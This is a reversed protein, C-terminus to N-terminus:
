KRINPREQVKIICENSNAIHAKKLESFLDNSFAELSKVNTTQSIKNDLNHAIGRTYSTFKEKQLVTTQWAIM